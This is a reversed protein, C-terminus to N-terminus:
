QNVLIKKFMYNYMNYVRVCMCVCVCTYIFCMYINVFYTQSSNTDYPIPLGKTM